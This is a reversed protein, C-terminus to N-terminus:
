NVVIASTYFKQAQFWRMDALWATVSIIPTNAGIFYGSIYRLLVSAPPIPVIIVSGATLLTTAQTTTFLVKVLTTPSSSPTTSASCTIDFEYTETGSVVAASTVFVGMAIPNGASIDPQAGNATGGTPIAGQDYSNTSYATATLAVNDWLVTQQDNIM